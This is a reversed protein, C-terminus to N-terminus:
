TSTRKRFMTMNAMSFKRSGACAKRPPSTSAKQEPLLKRSTSRNVLSAISGQKTSTTRDQVDRMEASLTPQSGVASPTRGLLASVESGAQSFRFINDISLLLDQNREDRFFETM